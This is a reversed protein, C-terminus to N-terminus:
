QSSYWSARDFCGSIDADLVWESCGQHNLSTYIAEVADQCARGPRFGYSNAEFRHEWEPELALKVLAQM